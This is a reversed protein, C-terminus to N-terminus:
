SKNIHTRVLVEYFIYRQPAAYRNGMFDSKCPSWIWASLIESFFHEFYMFNFRSEIKCTKYPVERRM